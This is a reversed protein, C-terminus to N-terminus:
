LMGGSVYVCGYATRKAFLECRLSCVNVLQFATPSCALYVPKVFQFAMPSCALRVPEVFQFAM